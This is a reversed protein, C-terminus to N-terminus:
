PGNTIFVLSSIAWAKSSKWAPYTPVPGALAMQRRGRDRGGPRGRGGAQGPRPRILGHAPHPRLERRRLPWCTPRTAKVLFIASLAAAFSSARAGGWSGRATYGHVQAAAVTAKTSPSGASWYATPPQPRRHHQAPRHGLSGGIQQNANILPAPWGPTTTAWGSSRRGLEDPRLRLGPGLSMLVEAPCSVAWPLRHRRRDPHALGGPAGMLSASSWSARPGFSSPPQLGRTAGVIIGASFPLFAFGSKLASYGLTGQLYYTLFLFMGFM